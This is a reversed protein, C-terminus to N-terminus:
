KGNVLSRLRDESVSSSQNDEDVGGGAEGGSALEVLEPKTIPIGTSPNYRLTCGSPRWGVLYGGKAIIQVQRYCDPLWLPRLGAADHPLEYQLIPKGTAPDFHVDESGLALCVAERSFGRRRYAEYLQNGVTVGWGNPVEDCSIPLKGTKLAEQPVIGAAKLASVSLRVKPFTGTNVCKLSKRLVWGWNRWEGRYIWSVKSWNQGAADIRTEDVRVVRENQLRNVVTGGPADRVNLTPDRPDAVNCLTEAAVGKPLLLLLSTLLVLVAENRLSKTEGFNRM